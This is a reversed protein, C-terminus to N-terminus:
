KGPLFEAIRAFRSPGAVLMGSVVACGVVVVSHVAVPLGTSPLLVTAAVASATAAAIALALRVTEAASARRTSM